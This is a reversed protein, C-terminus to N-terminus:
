VKLLNKEKRKKEREDAFYRELMVKQEFNLAPQSGIPVFLGIHAFILFGCAGMLFSSNGMIFPAFIAIVGSINIAYYAIMCKFAFRTIIGEKRRFYVYLYKSKTLTFMDVQKARIKSVIKLGRDAFYLLILAIFQMFFIVGILAIITDPM